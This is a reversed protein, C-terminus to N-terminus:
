RDKLSNTTNNDKKGDITSEYYELKKEVEKLRRKLEINEKRLSIIEEELRGAVKEAQKLQLDKQKVLRSSYELQRRLEKVELELNETAKSNSCGAASLLYIFAVVTYICARYGCM